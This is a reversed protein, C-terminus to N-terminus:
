VLRLNEACYGCISISSSIAQLPTMSAKTKCQGKSTNLRIQCQMAVLSKIEKHQDRGTCVHACLSLLSAENFVGAQLRTILFLCM